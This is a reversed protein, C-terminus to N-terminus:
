TGSDIRSLNQRILRSVHMQSIGVEEAIRRQGLGEVFRLYLIRRIREPLARIIGNVVSRSDMRLLLEDSFDEVYGREEQYHSCNHNHCGPEACYTNPVQM